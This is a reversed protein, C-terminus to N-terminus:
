AIQHFTASRPPCAGWAALHPVIEKAFFGPASTRNVNWPGPPLVQVQVPRPRLENGRCQAVGPIIHSIPRLSTPSRWVSAAPDVEPFAEYARAIESRHRKNILKQKTNNCHWRQRQGKLWGYRRWAQHLEIWRDLEGIRREIDHDIERIQYIMNRSIKLHYLSTQDFIWYPHWHNNRELRLEYRFYRLWGSPYNKWIWENNPIPRLPQSIECLKRTRRHRSQFSRNHRIITSGIVKLIAELIPRDERDLARESLIYSRSWGRQFPVELQRITYQNKRLSRLERVAALIRRDSVDRSNLM